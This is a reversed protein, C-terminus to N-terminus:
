HMADARAIAEVLVDGSILYDSLQTRAEFQQAYEKSKCSVM